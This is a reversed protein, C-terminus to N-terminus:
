GGTTLTNQEQEIREMVVGWPDPEDALAILQGLSVQFRPDHEAADILDQSTYRTQMKSAEALAHALDTAMMAREHHLLEAAIDLGQALLVEKTPTEPASNEGWSPVANMSAAKSEITEGANKATAKSKTVKHWLRHLTEKLTTM